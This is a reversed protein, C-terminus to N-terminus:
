KVYNLRRINKLHEVGEILVKFTRWEETTMEEQENYALLAHSIECHLYDLIKKKEDKTNDIILTIM